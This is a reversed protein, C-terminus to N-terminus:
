VSWPNVLTPCLKTVLGGDYYCSRSEKLLTYIVINSCSIEEQGWDKEADPDKGM